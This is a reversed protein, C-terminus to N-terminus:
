DVPLRQGHNPFVRGLRLAADAFKSETDGHEFQERCCWYVMLYLSGARKRDKKGGLGGELMDALKYMSEISWLKVGKEFWERAEEYRRDGGTHRGYYCLYGLTNPYVGEKPELTCLEKLADYSKQWDEATPHEIDDYPAYAIKNLAKIRAAAANM